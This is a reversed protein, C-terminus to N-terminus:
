GYTRTEEVQTISNNRNNKNKQTHSITSGMTRKKRDTQYQQDRQEPKRDTCYQQDRHEEKRDTPYYQDNHEQKHCQQDWNEQKELQTTNNIM